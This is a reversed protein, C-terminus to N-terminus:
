ASVERWPADDSSREFRIRIEPAPRMPFPHAMRGTIVWRRNNVPACTIPGGADPWTKGRIFASVTRHSVGLRQALDQQRVGGAAYAVRAERVEGATLKAAPNREGHHNRTM